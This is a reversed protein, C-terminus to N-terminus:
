QHIGRKSVKCSGGLTPVGGAAHPRAHYLGSSLVAAGHKIQKWLMGQHPPPPVGASVGLPHPAAARQFRSTRRSSSDDVWGDAVLRHGIRLGARSRREDELNGHRDRSLLVNVVEGFPGVLVAGQGRDTGHQRHVHGETMAGVVM